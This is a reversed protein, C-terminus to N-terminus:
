FVSRSTEIGTNYKPALFINSIVQKDEHDHSCIDPLYLSSIFCKSVDDKTGNMANSFDFYKTIQETKLTRRMRNLRPPTFIPANTTQVPSEFTCDFLVSMPEQEKKSMPVRLAVSFENRENSIKIRRMIRSRKIEKPM